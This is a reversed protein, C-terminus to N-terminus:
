ENKKAEKQSLEKLQVIEWEKYDSFNFRKLDIFYKIYKRAIRKEIPIEKGKCDEYNFEKLIIQLIKIPLEIRKEKDEFKLTIFPFKLDEINREFKIIKAQIKKNEM